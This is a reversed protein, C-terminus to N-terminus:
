VLVVFIFVLRICGVPNGGERALGQQRGPRLRGKELQAELLRIRLGQEENEAVSSNQPPEAFPAPEASTARTGRTVSRPPM